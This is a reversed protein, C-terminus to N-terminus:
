FISVKKFLNSKRKTFAALSKVNQREHDSKMRRRKRIKKEELFVKKKDDETQSPKQNMISSNESIEPSWNLFESFSQISSFPLNTMQQSLHHSIFGQQLPFNYNTPISDKYFYYTM